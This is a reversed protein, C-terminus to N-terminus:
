CGLIDLFGEGSFHRRRFEHVCVRVTNYGISRFWEDRAKDNEVTARHQTGDLEVILKKSEFLFDVYFNKKLTPSWFHKEAVYDYIGVQELYAEFTSEMWSRKHRGINARNESKKLRETALKSLKAKTEESHPRSIGPRGKLKDSYAKVSENTEKTLGKNWRMRAKVEESLSNYLERQSGRRGSSYTKLAAERIKAKLAPCSNCSRLCMYNGSSNLFKAVSGCGYHCLRDTEVPVPPKRM